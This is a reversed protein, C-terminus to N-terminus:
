PLVLFENTNFLVRCLAPLGDEEVLACSSRLEVDSPPRGFVLAFARRVQSPLTKHEREVRAALLKSQQLVFTSNFM